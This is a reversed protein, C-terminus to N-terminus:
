GNARSNLQDVARVFWSCPQQDSDDLVLRDAHRVVRVPTATGGGSIMSGSIEYHLDPASVQLVGGSVLLRAEGMLRMDLREVRLVDHTADIRVQAVIHGPGERVTVLEGALEVDWSGSVALPQNEEFRLAGKGSPGVFSGTLFWDVENSLPARAGLM